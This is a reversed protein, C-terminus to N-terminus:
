CLGCSCSGPVQTIHEKEGKLGFIAAVFVSWVLVLCVLLSHYGLRKTGDDHRPLMLFSHIDHHKWVNPLGLGHREFNVCNSM